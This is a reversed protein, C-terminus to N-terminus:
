EQPPLIMAARMRDWSTIYGQVTDIEEMFGVDRASSLDYERDFDYDVIMFHVFEWNQEGALEPRLGHRQALALWADNHAEVFDKMKTSGECPGQGVLGFNKALAPWVEAWRVTKGDAVNFARGKGCKEPHLAAFIEMKALIDQFTDSHTSHYGHEFGPFPVTAGAGHVEKYISLYVGIGQSLNMVNWGPTFGVIGDPRIESFTWSKGQSLETLKDYQSYYFV